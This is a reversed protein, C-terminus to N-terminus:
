QNRYEHRDSDCIPPLLFQGREASRFLMDIIVIVVPIAAMM